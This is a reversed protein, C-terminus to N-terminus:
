PSDESPQSATEDPRPETPQPEDPQPETPQPKTPQPKTPQPKTPQLKTPQPEPVSSIVRGPGIPRGRWFVIPFLTERVRPEAVAPDVVASEVELVEILAEDLPREVPDLVEIQQRSLEQDFRRAFLELAHVDGSLGAQRLNPLIRRLLRELEFRQAALQVLVREAQRREAQRAKQSAESARRLLTDAEALRHYLGLVDDALTEPFSRLPTPLEGPIPIAPHKM